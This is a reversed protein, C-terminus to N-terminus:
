FTDRAPLVMPVKLRQGDRIVNLHVRDGVSYNLRVYANFQLMTMSLPRDDISYIIDGPQIGAERSHKPVFQGQRFALHDPPLGLAEKEKPTLNQGHVGPTPDLGWMSARWSFDTKKWGEELVLDATRTKGDRQWSVPVKGATPARHLAYQVDAYSAVPMRNLLNLVDGARLGARSAASGSAVTTVRDGQDVDLTLGVNEPNPYYWLWIYEKKWEGAQKLAARRFDYVQHCHICADSKLRSAAPYQEATRLSTGPAWDKTGPSPVSQERGPRPAGGPYGRLPDHHNPVSSQARAAPAGVPPKGNPDHRYAELAARMAHKLGALTLHADAEGADRGGYRGYIQENANLFFAAWTLDYDFDFANLNVGRM